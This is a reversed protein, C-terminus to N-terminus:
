VRGTSWNGEVLVLRGGPRLLQRWRQVVVAPDPVAWLVHRSLVTDFSSQALPPQAADGETFRPTPRVAAAKRRAIELMSPAFDVGTVNHGAQALLLSLTGTGCGMDAIDQPRDSPLLPLLLQQWAERIRPESLGHDPAQDFSAAEQDWLTRAENSM